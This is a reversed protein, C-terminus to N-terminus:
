ESKSTFELDIDSTNGDGDSPAESGGFIDDEAFVNGTRETAFDRDDGSHTKLGGWTGRDCESKVRGDGVSRGWPTIEDEKM